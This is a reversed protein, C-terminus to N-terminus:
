SRAMRQLALFRQPMPRASDMVKPMRAKLKKTPAIAQKMLVSASTTLLMGTASAARAQVPM